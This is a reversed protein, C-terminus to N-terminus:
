HGADRAASVSVTVESLRDVQRLLVIRLNRAIRDAQDVTLEKSIQIGIDVWFKNGMQRSRVFTVSQIDQQAEAISTMVDVSDGRLARDLLSGVADKLHVIGNGFIVVGVIMATIADCIPHVFISLAIGIIVAGSSVADTKNQFANAFLSQSNMRRGACESLRYVLVNYIVSVGCALLAVFDPPKSEGNIVVLLGAVFIFISVIILVLYVLASSLSDIKGHGYPHSEDAPMTSLRRSFMIIATGFVNSLSHLGDAILAKSGGFVGVVIKYITIALNGWLSIGPVRAACRVCVEKAPWQTAQDM